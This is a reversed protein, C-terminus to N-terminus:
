FFRQPFFEFLFELVFYSLGTRDLSDSLKLIEIGKVFFVPWALSTNIDEVVDALSGDIDAHCTVYGVSHFSM